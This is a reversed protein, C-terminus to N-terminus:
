QASITLPITATTTIKQSDVVTVQLSYTGTAPSAWNANLMNGSVVFSLGSPVGSISISLVTAASDTFAISGTLAQGAVGTMPTAAIGPGPKVISVTVVGSGTLGTLTDQAIVTVAFTGFTPTSWTICGTGAITMGPPAGKLNYSLPDTATADVCFSLPTGV